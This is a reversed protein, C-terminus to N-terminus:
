GEDYRPLLMLFPSAQVQACWPGPAAATLWAGLARGRHGERRCVPSCTETCIDWGQILSQLCHGPSPVPGPTPPHILVLSPPCLTPLLETSASRASLSILIEPFIRDLRAVKVVGVVM